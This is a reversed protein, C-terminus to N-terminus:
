VTDSRFLATPSFGHEPAAGTTWRFQGSTRMNLIDLSIDAVRFAKWLSKIRGARAEARNVNQHVVGALCARSRKNSGIEGEPAAHHQHIEVACEVTDM